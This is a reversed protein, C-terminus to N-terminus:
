TRQFYLQSQLDNAAKLFELDDPSLELGRRICGMAEHKMGMRLHIAAKNRWLGVNNSQFRLASDIDRLADEVRNAQWYDTARNALARWFTPDREIARSFADIAAVANGLKRHSIGLKNWADPDQPNVETAKRFDLLAENEQGARSRIVGRCKWGDSNQASRDIAQDADILAEDVKGATLKDIARQCLIRNDAFYTGVAAGALASGSEEFDIPSLDRIVHPRILGGEQERYIIGLRGQLFYSSLGRHDAMPVVDYGYGGQEATGFPIINEGDELVLPHTYVDAYSMYTFVGNWGIVPIAFGGVYTAAEDHIVHKMCRLMKSYTEIGAPTDGSRDSVQEITISATSAIQEAQERNGTEYARFLDFGEADGIWATAANEIKRDKIVILEPAPKLATIIFDSTYEEDASMHHAELIGVIVELDDEGAIDRLAENAIHENGAFSVAIHDRMLKTKIVGNTISIKEKTKDKTLRTDGILFVSGQVKRAVILTMYANREQPGRVISSM